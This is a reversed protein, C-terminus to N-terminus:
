PGYPGATVRLGTLLLPLAEDSTHPSWRVTYASRIVKSAGSMGSEQSVSLSGSLRPDNSIHALRM